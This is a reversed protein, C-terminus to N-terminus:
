VSVTVRKMPNGVEVPLRVGLGLGLGGGTGSGSGSPGVSSGSGMGSGAILGLPSFHLRLRTNSAAHEM